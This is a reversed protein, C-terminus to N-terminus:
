SVDKVNNFFAAACLLSTIFGFLFLGIILSVGAVVFDLIGLVVVM